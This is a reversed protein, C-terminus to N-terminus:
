SLSGSRDTTTRARKRRRGAVDRGMAHPQHPGAATRITFAGTGSSTGSIVSYAGDASYADNDVGDAKGISKLRMLGSKATGALPAQAHMVAGPSPVSAPALWTSASGGIV